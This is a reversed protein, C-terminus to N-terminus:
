LEPLLEERVRRPQDALTQRVTAVTSAWLEEDPQEWPGVAVHPGIADELRELDVGLDAAELGDTVDSLVARYAERLAGDELVVAFLRGPHHGNVHFGDAELLFPFRLADDCGWPIFVFREDQPDFYVRYNSPTGVYGDWHVVFVEAAAHALFGDLDLWDQMAAAREASDSAADLDDVFGRLDARDEPLGVTDHEFRAIGDDTFDAVRREGGVTVALSGEYQNGDDSGLREELFRRGVHEVALYLGWPEGDVTLLVHRARPAPRDVAAFARYAMAESLLGPDSIMNNLSLKKMGFFSVLEGYRAFDIKFAPKEGSELGRFSGGGKLRLGVTRQVGDHGAEVPAYQRPRDILAQLSDAPIEISLRAPDEADFFDEPEGVAFDPGCGVLWLVLIWKAGARIM